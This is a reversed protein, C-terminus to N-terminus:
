KNGEPTVEKIIENVYVSQVSTVVFEREEGAKMTHHDDELLEGKIYRQVHVQVPNNHVLVKVTTTM